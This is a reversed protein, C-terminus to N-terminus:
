LPPQVSSKEQTTAVLDEIGKVGKEQMKGVLSVVAAPLPDSLQLAKIMGPVDNWCNVAIELGMLVDCLGAIVDMPTTAGCSNWQVKLKGFAIMDRQKHHLTLCVFKLLGLAEHESGILFLGKDLFSIVQEECAPSLLFLSQALIFSSDSMSPRAIGSYFISKTKSEASFPVPSVM